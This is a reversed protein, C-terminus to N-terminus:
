CQSTGGSRWGLHGRSCNSAMAELETGESSCLFTQRWRSYLQRDPIQLNTNDRRLSRKELSFLGQEKWMEEYTVNGLGGLLKKRLLTLILYCTFSNSKVAKGMLITMIIKKLRIVPSPVPVVKQGKHNCMVATYTIKNVLSIINSKLMVLFHFFYPHFLAPVKLNGKRRFTSNYTNSPPSIRQKNWIKM